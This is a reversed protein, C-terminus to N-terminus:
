PPPQNGRLANLRQNYEDIDIEGRAFREHLISEATPRSPEHPARSAGSDRRVLTVIVWAIGGWFVIMTLLMLLWWWGVGDNWGNDWHM